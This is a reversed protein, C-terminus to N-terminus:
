KEDSVISISSAITPKAAQQVKVSWEYEPKELYSLRFEPQGYSVVLYVGNKSLVRNVESIM